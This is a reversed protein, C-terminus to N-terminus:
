HNQKLALNLKIGNKHCAILSVFSEFKGGEKKIKISIWVTRSFDKQTKFCAMGNRGETNFVLTRPIDQTVLMQDSLM